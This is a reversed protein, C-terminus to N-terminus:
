LVSSHLIHSTMSTAFLLSNMGSDYSAMESFTTDLQSLADLAVTSVWVLHLHWHHAIDAWSSKLGLILDRPIYAAFVLSPSGLGEPARRVNSHVRLVPYSTIPNLTKGTHNRDQKLGM